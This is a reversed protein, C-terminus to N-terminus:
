CLWVRRVLREGVLGEEVDPRAATGLGHTCDVATVFRLDALGGRARM